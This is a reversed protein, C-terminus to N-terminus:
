DDGFWSMALPNIQTFNPFTLGIGHLSVGITSTPVFDLSHLDAQVPPLVPEIANALYPHRVLLFLKKSVEGM